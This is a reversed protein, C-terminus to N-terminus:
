FYILIPCSFPGFDKIIIKENIIIEKMSYFLGYHGQPQILTVITLWPLDIPLLEALVQNLLGYPQAAGLVEWVPPM